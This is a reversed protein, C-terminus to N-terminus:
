EPLGSGGSVCRHGAVTLARCPFRPPRGCRRSADRRVVIPALGAAAARHLRSDPCGPGGRRDSAPHGGAAGSSPRLSDLAPDDRSQPARAASGRSGHVFYDCAVVDTRAGPGALNPEHNASCISSTTSTPRPPSSGGVEANTLAGRGRRKGHQSSSVTRLPARASAHDASLARHRPRYCRLAGVRIAAESASGDPDAPAHRGPPLRDVESSRGSLDSRGLPCWGFVASTGMALDFRTRIPVALASRVSNGDSTCERVSIRRVQGTRAAAPLSRSASAIEAWARVQKRLVVSARAGPGQNLRPANM